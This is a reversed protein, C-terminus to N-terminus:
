APHFIYLERSNKRYQNILKLPDPAPLCSGTGDRFGKGQFMQCDDSITQMIKTGLIKHFFSVVRLAFRVAATIFSMNNAIRLARNRNGATQEHRLNKILKGTDIKVPCSVACLGDTACTENGAYDFAKALSAAIHPEKGSKTLASFERHIVIRQRPTLTM